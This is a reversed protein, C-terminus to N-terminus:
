DYVYKWSGDQQRKWVTHFIGTSEVPEGNANTGKFLYKGWTYAMTFDDSLDVRDPKWTLSSKPANPRDYFSFISDKGVIMRGGRQIGADTAAFHGFAEAAGKKAYMDNFAQEADYIQQIAEERTLEQKVTQQCSFILSAGIFLLFLKKM